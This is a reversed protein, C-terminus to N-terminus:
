PSTTGGSAGGPDIVSPIAVPAWQEPIPVGALVFTDRGAAKASYLAHDAADLLEAATLAHRPFVAVGISVSVSVTQSTELLFDPERVAENIRRAATLSGPVDTEPLLIVFEEGGQRFALDVERIARRVRRTFEVLVEDGARHGYEDNIAKFHDLDIVLVGLARNFRAAREIELRMSEALGRLNGLGTLADTVSLRQSEQMGAILEDLGAALRATEDRGFLRSRATLDGSAALGVTGVLLRLPRTALGGLWWALLVSLLVAVLGASALVTLLIPPHDARPAPADVALRLPQDDSTSLPVASASGLALPVVRLGAAASLEDLLRADIPVVAYAYGAVEGYRGAIPSRAALGAPADSVPVDLRAPDAGCVAWPGDPADDGVLYSEGRVAAAAALAAAVVELNRCKAAIVAKVAAGARPGPDHYTSPLQGVLAAVGAALPALLLVFFAVSLRVRLSVAAGRNQSATAVVSWV